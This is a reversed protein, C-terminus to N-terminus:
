TELLLRDLRRRPFSSSLGSSCYSRFLRSLALRIISPLPIQTGVYDKLGPDQVAKEQRHHSQERRPTGPMKAAVVAGKGNAGHYPREASSSSPRNPTM